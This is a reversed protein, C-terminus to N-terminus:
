EEAKSEPYLEISKSSPDVIIPKEAEAVWDELAPTDISSTFVGNEFRYSILLTEAPLAIGLFPDRFETLLAHVDSPPDTQQETSFKAGIVCDPFMTKRVRRILWGTTGEENEPIFTNEVVISPNPIIADVANYLLTVAREELERVKVYWEPHEPLAPRLEQYLYYVLEQGSFQGKIGEWWMWKNQSQYYQPATFFAECHSGPIFLSEPNTIDGNSNIITTAIAAACEGIVGSERGPHNIWVCSQGFLRAEQEGWRFFDEATFALIDDPVVRSPSLAVRKEKPLKALILSPVINAPSYPSAARPFSSVLQSVMGFSYPKGYIPLETLLMGATGKPPPKRFIKPVFKMGRLQNLGVASLRVKPTLRVIRTLPLM